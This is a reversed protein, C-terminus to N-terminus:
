GRGVGAAIAADAAGWVAKYDADYPLDPGGPTLGRVGAARAARFEADSLRVAGGARSAWAAADLPGTDHGHRLGVVGFTGDAFAAVAVGDGHWRHGEGRRGAAWCVCTDPACFAHRRYWYAAWALEPGGAFTDPPVADPGVRFTFAGPLLEAIPATLSPM